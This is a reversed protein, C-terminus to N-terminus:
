QTVKAFNRQDRAKGELGARADAVKEIDADRWERTMEHARHTDSKPGQGSVWRTLSMAHGGAHPISFFMVHRSYGDAKIKRALAYGVSKLLRREVWAKSMQTVRGDSQRQPKEPLGPNGTSTAGTTRANKAKNKKQRGQGDAGEKDAADGLLDKLKRTPNASAKAEVIAYPKGTKGGTQWVADIGRGRARLAAVGAKSFTTPWLQVLEGADNLKNTSVRGADHLASGGWRQQCVYDAMHEGLIGTAKNGLTKLLDGADIKSARSGPSTGTVAQDPKAKSSASGEQGVIQTEPKQQNAPTTPKRRNADAANNRSKAIWGDVEKKFQDFQKAMNQRIRDLMRTTDADLMNRLTPNALMEDLYKKLKGMDLCEALLKEPNGIGLKRMSTFLGDLSLAGAKVGRLSRKVADGGGPILGILATILDFWGSPSTPNSALVVLAKLIDRADIAQGVGPVLGLASEALIAWAGNNEGKLFSVAEKKLSSLWSM